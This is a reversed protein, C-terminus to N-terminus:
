AISAPQPPVVSRCGVAAGSQRRCATPAAVGVDRDDGLAELVLEPLGDLQARLLGGFIEVDLDGELARLGLRLDVLLDLHELGREVLLGGRDAERREVALGRDRQQLLGLVGIDRDIPKSEPTSLSMGTVVAAVSLM